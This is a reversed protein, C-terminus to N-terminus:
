NTLFFSQHSLTISIIPSSLSNTLPPQPTIPLPPLTPTNSMYNNPLRPQHFLTTSKTLFSFLHTLFTTPSFLPNTPCTILSLRYTLQQSYLEHRLLFPHFLTTSTISSLLPNTSSFQQHLQYFPLIPTTSSLPIALSFQQHLQYPFLITTHFIYNILSLIPQLFNNIYNFFSSLYSTSLIGDIKEDIKEYIEKDIKEDIKENNM